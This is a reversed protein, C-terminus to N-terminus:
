NKPDNLDVTFDYDGSKIKAQAKDFYSEPPPTTIARVADMQQMRDLFEKNFKDYDGAALLTRAQRFRDQLAKYQNAAKAILDLSVRM